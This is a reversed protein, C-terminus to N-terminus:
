LRVTRKTILTKILWRNGLLDRISGSPSLGFAEIVLRVTAIPKRQHWMSRAQVICGASALRRVRRIGEEAAATATGDDALQAFTRHKSIVSELLLGAMRTDSSANGDHKRYETLVDTLYILHGQRALRLIVDVDECIKFVSDFLGVQQLLSKRMMTTPMLVGLEGSLLDLYEVRRAYGDELSAGVGDIYRFQTHCIAIDVHDVMAEFQAALRDPLMRDDDDLFAIFEARAARIGINRAVSVGRGLQRIVRIRKDLKEIDALDDECGDAVVILEFNDFTQGLVSNV